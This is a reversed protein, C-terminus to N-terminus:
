QRRGCHPWRYLEETRQVFAAGPEGAEDLKPLVYLRCTDAETLLAIDVIGLIGSHLPAAKAALMFCDIEISFAVPLDDSKNRNRSTKAKGVFFRAKDDAVVDLM